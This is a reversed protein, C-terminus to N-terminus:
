AKKGGAYLLVVPVQQKLALSAAGGPSRSAKGFFNALPFNPRWFDGLLFVVGNSRLHYSLTRLLKQPPTNDYDMGQCGMGQFLLYLPRLESSGGTAVTLCPYRQSLYWYYYFFNGMHPAYIIAGRGLDLAKQLHEEGEVTWQRVKEKTLRQPAMLIELLIIPFHCLYARCCKIIEKPTKDLVEAMNFLVAVRLPKAIIALLYGSLWGILIIVREPMLALIVMVVSQRKKDETLERDM